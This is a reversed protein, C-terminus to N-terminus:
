RINRLSVTYSSSMGTPSAVSYVREPSLPAAVIHDLIRHKFCLFLPGFDSSELSEESILARAKDLTVEFNDPLNVNM